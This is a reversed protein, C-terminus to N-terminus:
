LQHFATRLEQKLEHIYPLRRADDTQQWKAFLEALEAQIRVLVTQLRQGKLHRACFRIRNRQFYFTTYLPKKHCTQGVGHLIEASYSRVLRIGKKRARFSLDIDEWYTFYSVDTGGLSQFVDQRVWLATGPIYDFPGDLMPDLNTDHYHVPLAADPNFWGGISHISQPHALYKICPAVMGATYKRATRACAERIGPLVITDNTLFFAASAGSAFVHKLLINFGGSFGRNKEIRFLHIGPYFDEIRPQDPRSGNDLCFIDDPEYGADLVSQICRKTLRLKNFYLVAFPTTIRYIGM